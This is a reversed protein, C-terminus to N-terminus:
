FRTRQVQCDLESRLSPFRHGQCEMNITRFWKHNSSFSYGVKWVKIVFLARMRSSDADSLPPILFSDITPSLKMLNQGCCVNDPCEVIVRVELSKKPKLFGFIQIELAFTIVSNYINTHTPHPPFWIKNQIVFKVM